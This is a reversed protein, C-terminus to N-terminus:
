DGQETWSAVMEEDGVQSQSSPRRACHRDLIPPQAGGDRLSKDKVAVLVAAPQSPPALKGPLPPGAFVVVIRPSGAMPACLM